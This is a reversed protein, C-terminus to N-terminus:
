YKTSMYQKILDHHEVAGNIMSQGHKRYFFLIKPVITVHYDALLARMWFDYDEYGLKMSEDYGGLQEWMTKKFLSTCCIRNHTRFDSLKPHLTPCSMIRNDDGFEQWVVGVIDDIGITNILFTSDIKDDADLPLIWEGKAERIGANRASSLGQNDQEILKVDYMKAVQSTHDTSGDNVVIVELPNNSLASQIADGLYQAQNYCPIIISANHM